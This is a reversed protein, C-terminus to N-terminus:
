QVGVHSDSGVGLVDSENKISYFISDNLHRYRPRVSIGSNSWLFVICNSKIEKVRRKDRGKKRVESALVRQLNSDLPIV